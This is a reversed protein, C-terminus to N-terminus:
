LNACTKCEMKEIVWGGCQNCRIPNLELPIKDYGAELLLQVLTSFPMLAAYESVKTAQGNCRLVVVGIKGSKTTRARSQRLWALPAFKAVSKVEVDIPLNVIDGSPDAGRGVTAYPFWERLYNSVLRETALGRNRRHQNAM